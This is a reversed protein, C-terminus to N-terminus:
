TSILEPARMRDTTIKASKNKISICPVTLTKCVHKAELPAKLHIKKSCKQQQRLREITTKQQKKLM